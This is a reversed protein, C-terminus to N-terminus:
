PWASFAGGGRPQVMYAREQLGDELLSGTRTSQSPLCLATLSSLWSTHKLLASGPSFSVVLASASTKTLLHLIVVHSIIRNNLHSSSVAASAASVPRSFLEKSELSTITEYSWFFHFRCPFRQTAKCTQLNRLHSQHPILQSKM